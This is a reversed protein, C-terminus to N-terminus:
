NTFYERNFILILFFIIIQCSFVFLIKLIDAEDIKLIEFIHFFLFYNLLGLILFNNDNLFIYYYRIKWKKKGEEGKNKKIM